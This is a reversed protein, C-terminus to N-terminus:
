KFLKFLKLKLSWDAARAAKKTGPNQSEQVFLCGADM